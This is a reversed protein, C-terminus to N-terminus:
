IVVFVKHAHVRLQLAMLLAQAYRTEQLATKVALPTVDVDIDLPDFVLAEDLSFVLLGETGAAAWARGTPSFRVCTTMIERRKQRAGPDANGKAGPMRDTTGAQLEDDSDMALNFDDIPGAETMRTSNLIHKIGDLSNNHSVQFRKLLMQQSVEYICV